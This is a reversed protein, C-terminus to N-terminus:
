TPWIHTDRLPNPINLAPMSSTTLDPKYISDLQATGPDNKHLSISADNNSLDTESKTMKNEVLVIEKDIQKTMDYLAADFSYINRVNMYEKFNYLHIILAVILGASTLIYINNTFYSIIIGIGLTILYTSSSYKVYIIHILITVLSIFYLIYM